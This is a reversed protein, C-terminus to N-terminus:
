EKKRLNIEDHRQIVAIVFVGLCGGLLWYPSYSQCNTEPELSEEGPSYLPGGLLYGHQRKTLAAGLNRHSVEM